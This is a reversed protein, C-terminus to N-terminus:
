GGTSVNLRFGATAVGGREDRLVVGLWLEGESDPASLTNTASTTLDDSAVGSRAEALTGATTYWTASIAERRTALARTETDYSVYTEAGGCPAEDEACDPWSVSLAVTAGTPVTPAEGAGDEPVAVPGDGADLSLGSVTPAQNSVYGSNWAVYTEQDANALGCRVRASALVTDAGNAPFGLVPQYYGGTIDPDTPRGAPEGDAPPPPNPGFLSCADDPMVGSAVLGTGIPLLAEAGPDLCDTSVPGLEALAKRASCFSWDVEGVSLAGDADAYLARLEVPEGEEVEAPSFAVALLRPADVYPTPDDLGPACASLALLTLRM